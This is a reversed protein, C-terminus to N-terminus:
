TVNCEVGLADGLEDFYRLWEMAGSDGKQAADRKQAYYKKGAAFYANQAEWLNPTCEIEGLLGLAQTLTKFLECEDEAGTLHTIFRTISLSALHSVTDPEPEIRHRKYEAVLQRLSELDLTEGRFIKQIDAHTVIEITKRVVAPLPIRMEQMAHFTAENDEYVKRCCKESAGIAKQLVKDFVARQEDKFLHWVSYNHAGFYHDIARILKPIDAKKFSKELELRMSEFSDINEAIRVGGNYTLGGLFLVAFTFDAEELTILSHVRVKGIALKRAGSKLLTYQERSARFSYLVAHAAYDTTISSLAYHACFRLLDLKAPEIYKKYLAAGNGSSSVNSEAKALRELFPTEFTQAFVREAIQVARAAYQLIQLTEIGAIDDFFWGCSTYMLMCHRQLELLQLLRTRDQPAPTDLGFSKFFNRINESSRDLIVEIYRDRMEWPNEVYSRATQEYLPVCVDRLWDLADRLPERWRQHWGPNGGSNCGCDSRWREVGHACSWSTNEIIEAEHSPPYRELYEGYNSIKALKKSEITHVCYALAMDGFKHHHGYTEGDTAIHVLQPTRSTDSFTNALANAFREGNDLLNGFAVAQSLQGNYFFVAILRGSPLQVLYPRRPDVAGGRVDTWQTAGLKRVRSAQSPALITFKIDREALIDLSELDVATEPLWMGEPYRKFRKEFDKIGWLVQTLKDRRTALPMIMHNYVQALANGHGSCFTQSVVDAEIIAAYLEPQTREMWAILTPSINFSIKAYNNVIDIIQRGENFIRSATNPAYGEVAVRENWDHYPFASDQLEVEESWANERPPQHFHGHVCIYRM